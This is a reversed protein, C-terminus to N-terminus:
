KSEVKWVAIVSEGEAAALWEGDPSFAIGEGQRRLEAVVSGPARNGKELPTLKAPEYRWVTCKDTGGVLLPLRPHFVTDFSSKENAVTQGTKFDYLVLKDQGVASLFTGQYDAALRIVGSHRPSQGEQNNVNGFDAIWVQKGTAADWAIVKGDEGGTAVAKSDRSWAADRVFNTHGTCTSLLKLDGADWIKVLLDAGVTAIRSGDPSYAVAEIWGDHAKVDHVPATAPKGDQWAWLQLHRDSGGTAIWKGTPHIDFGRIWGEPYECHYTPAVHRDREGKAPKEPLPTRLDWIALRRDTIQGLLLHTEIPHFKLREPRIISVAKPTNFTKPQKVLQIKGTQASAPSAMLLATLVLTAPVSRTGNATPVRLTGAVITLATKM